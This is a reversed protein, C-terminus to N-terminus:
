LAEEGRTRLISRYEVVEAETPDAGALRLLTGLEALNVKKALARNTSPQLRATRKPM